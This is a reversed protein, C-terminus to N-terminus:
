AEFATVASSQARQDCGVCVSNSPLPKGSWTTSPQKLPSSMLRMPVPPLHSPQLDCLHIRDAGMARPASDSPLSGGGPPCPVCASWASIMWLAGAALFLVVLIPFLDAFMITQHSKLSPLTGSTVGRKGTVNRRNPVVRGNDHGPPARDLSCLSECTDQHPGRSISWSKSVLHEQSPNQRCTSGTSVSRHSPDRDPLISLGRDADLDM